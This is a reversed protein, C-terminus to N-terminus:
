EQGRQLGGAQGGQGGRLRGSAWVQAHPLAGCQVALVARGLAACCLAKPSPDENIGQCQPCVENGLLPVVHRQHAHRGPEKNMTGIDLSASGLKCLLAARRRFLYVIVHPHERVETACDVRAVYVEPKPRPTGYFYAAVQLGAASHTDTEPPRLEWFCGGLRPRCNLSLIHPM